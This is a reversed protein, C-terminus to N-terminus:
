RVRGLQASLRSGGASNQTPDKAANVNGAAKRHHTTGGGVDKAARGPTGPTPRPASAAAADSRLM